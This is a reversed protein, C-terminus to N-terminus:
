VELVEDGAIVFVQDGAKPRVKGMGTFAGFAPLVGQHEGFYFCALRARQRGNGKLHVCPHIHGALNYFPAPVEELPHHTLVFPPLELGERYVELNAQQYHGEPLIDHNGLILEFRVASFQGMLRCFEEWEQNYDSHFLDGLFLVRQPQFDLLLSILRDWNAQSVDSPVPLGERRFHAAKGLHLDALLLAEEAEWYIAKFPHLLLAEGAVIARIAGRHEIETKM